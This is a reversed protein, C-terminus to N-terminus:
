AENHVQEVIYAVVQEVTMETTDIVVADDAVKLPAYQRSSDFKDRRQMDSLVSDFTVDYGRQIQENYRRKARVFDSATIFFKFKADPLVVTGIDRGDLVISKRNAIERQKTVMFDRVKKIAAVQSVHTTVRTQRIQETVDENNVLVTSGSFNLKFDTLLAIIAQEDALDISHKLAYYTLARYMAGTDLYLIQLAKALAKAVTSKGAGSPGDIAIQYM